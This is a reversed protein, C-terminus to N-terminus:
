RNLSPLLDVTETKKSDIVKAYIQTMAVSSHGLLKSVTFVDAGNALCQTAFTHRAIHSHLYKVVGAKQAWENLAKNYIGTIPPLDHFIREMPSHSRMSLLHMATESLPVQVMITSHKKPRFNLISRTPDSAMPQVDKWTLRQIDSIRLGTYCAFLFASRVVPAVDTNDWLMNIEEQTLFERPAHKPRPKKIHNFPNHKVKKEQIAINWVAQLRGMYNRVTIASIQNSLYEQFSALFSEDVKRFPLPKNETFAKLQRLASRRCPEQHIEQYADIFAIFCSKASSETVIDLGQAQIEYERKVRYKQALEFIQKDELKVRRKANLSTYDESVTLRLYEKYRKGNEYIDLYLSYGQKIKKSRLTINAM